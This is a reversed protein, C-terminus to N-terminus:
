SQGRARRASSQRRRWAYGLGGLAVLAPMLFLNAFKLRNGLSEIEANLSRRVEKLERNIRIKEERFKQLESEQEKSLVFQQSSEKQKQLAAIRRNAEEAMQLLSQERELWRGQARSELEQVRTFPREFRGRTRLSILAESGTLMEVANQFFNLNDNFVRSLNLGLFSQQDVSYGDFLLDADAVIVVTTEANAEVRHSPTAPTSEGPEGKAPPPAGQPFATQFRGRVMVALDLAAQGPKFDRRLAEMGGRAKLSPELAAQPSSRLLSEYRHPSEPVRSIAGAVPLLISELQASIVNETNFAAAQLSLWFPNNEVQGGANRLRTAYGFDAVAKDADIRVGWSALLRTM